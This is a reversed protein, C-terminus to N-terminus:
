EATAERSDDSGEDQSAERGYVIKVSLSAETAASAFVIGAQTSFKLGFQIEVQDPRSANAAVKRAMAATSIAMGEIVAQAKEFLEEAQQRSPLRSTEEDGVVTVAEVLVSVGNIEAPIRRVAM